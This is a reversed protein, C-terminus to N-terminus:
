EREPSKIPDGSPSVLYWERDDGQGMADGPEQDQNLYYLRWGNYTVQTTGDERPITGLLAADVGAGAVPEGNALLPVWEELCEEDTCPSPSRFQEGGIFLYLSRGQGDVLAPGFDQVNNVQVTVAGTVPVGPTETTIPSATAVPSETPPQTVSVTPENTPLPVPTLATIGSPGCATLFLVCILLVEPLATNM